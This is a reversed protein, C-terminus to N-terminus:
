FVSKNMVIHCPHHRGRKNVTFSKSLNGARSKTFELAEPWQFLTQGHPPSSRNGFATEEVADGFIRKV